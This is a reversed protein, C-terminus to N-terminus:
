KEVIKVYNYERNLSLYRYFNLVKKTLIMKNKLDSCIEFQM